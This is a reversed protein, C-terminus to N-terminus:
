FLPCMSCLLVFIFTGLAQGVILYGVKSNKIELTDCDIMGLKANWLDSCRAVMHFGMTIVASAFIGQYIDRWHTFSASAM